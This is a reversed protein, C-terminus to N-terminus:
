LRNDQYTTPSHVTDRQSTQLPIQPTNPSTQGDVRKNCSEQITSGKGDEQTRHNWSLFLESISGISLHRNKEQWVHAAIYLITKDRDPCMIYSLRSRDEPQLYYKMIKYM